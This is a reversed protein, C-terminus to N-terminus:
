VGWKSLMTMLAFGACLSLLIPILPLNYKRMKELEGPILEVTAVFLFSGGLLSQLVAGAISNNETFVEALGMGVGISIIDISVFVGALVFFMFRQSEWYGSAVLSSGLSFSAFGKHTAVAVFTAKITPIDTASGVTLGELIVHISLVITLLISVWPNITQQQEPEDMPPAVAFSVVSPRGATKAWNSSKGSINSAGSGRRSMTGGRPGWQMNPPLVNNTSGGGAGSESGSRAGGGSSRSRLSAKSTRKKHVHGHGHNGHHHHRHFIEEEGYGLDERTLTICDKCDPLPIEYSMQCDKCDPFPIKINSEPGPPKAVPQPDEEIAASEEKPTTSKEVGKNESIAIFSEQKEKTDEGVDQTPSSAAATDDTAAVSETAATTARASNTTKTEDKDKGLAHEHEHSHGCSCNRPDDGYDHLEVSQEHHLVHDHHGHGHGEVAAEVEDGNEDINALIGKNSISSDLLLLEADTVGGGGGGNNTIDENNGGTITPESKLSPAVLNEREQETGAASKNEAAALKAAAELKRQEEAAALGEAFLIDDEDEESHHFFNGKRGAFYIDIFREMTAEVMLLFIFAIAFITQAWPFAHVHGAHPDSGGGEDDHDEHDDQLLRWLSLLSRHDHDSHDDGGGELNSDHGQIFQDDDFRSTGGSAFHDDTMSSAASATSTSEHGHDDHDDEPAFYLDMTEAAHPLMHVLAIMIM